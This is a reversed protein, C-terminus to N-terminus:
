DKRELRLRDGVMVEQVSGDADRVFTLDEPHELSFFVTDSAPFLERRMGSPVDECFLRDDESTVTVGYGPFDVFRYRGAYQTYVSPDVEAFAKELPQFGPWDYVAALGRMVEQGLLDGNDGNTMWVVGQGTSVYGGAYCRYGENGGGHEFRMQDEIKSIALGLGYGDGVPPTLMQQTMEASLVASSKGARSRQIEIVFCALDSPTTWLGAAAREPYTHWRGRVMEGNGRHATAASEAYAEPLPQEFTSHVMGLRDLVIEQVLDAFPRGTVDELLQQLVTYGGGSYSYATGPAQMVRVPDSNAPPEGDLVQQVTPVDEGAAYGRFGHVTLGATHSLLGRLTVRHEQTHENEPVQWSRLPENVDAELDLVGAEVLHLAAMASIPKSISAAQFRTEGTVLQSGGVQLLGYGQAWAIDGDEVLAISFGPVGYHAQREGLNGRKWQRGAIQVAPLLGSEIAQVAQELRTM